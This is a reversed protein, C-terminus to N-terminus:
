YLETVGAKSSWEPLTKEIDNCSTLEVGRFYKFKKDYLYYLAYCNTKEKAEAGNIFTLNLKEVCAPLIRGEFKGVGAKFVDQEKSQLSEKDVLFGIGYHIAVILNIPSDPSEGANVQTGRTLDVTGVFDDGQKELEQYMIKIDSSPFAERGELALAANYARKPLDYECNSRYQTRKKPAEAARSEALERERKKKEQDARFEPYTIGYAKEFDEVYQKKTHWGQAQVEGMEASNDFGLKQAEEEKNCGLLFFIVSLACLARIVQKNCHQSKIEKSSKLTNNMKSACKM